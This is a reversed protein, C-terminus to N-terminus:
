VHYRLAPVRLHRAHLGRIFLRRRDIQLWSRWRQRPPSPSSQPSRAVTRMRSPTHRSLLPVGSSRQCCGRPSPSDPLLLELPALCHRVPDPTATGLGLATLTTALGGLAFGFIRLRLGNNFSVICQHRSWSLIVTELRCLGMQGITHHFLLETLEVSRRQRLTRPSQRWTPTLLPCPRLCSPVTPPSACSARPAPPRLAPPRGRRSSPCPLPPLTPLRPPPTGLLRLLPEPLLLKSM